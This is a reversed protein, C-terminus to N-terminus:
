LASPFHPIHKFLQNSIAVSIPGRESGSKVACVMHVAVASPLSSSSATQTLLVAANPGSCVLESPYM